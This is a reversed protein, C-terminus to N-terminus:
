EEEPDHSAPVGWYKREFADEELTVYMTKLYAKIGSKDGVEWHSPTIILDVTKVDAYDLLDITGEKLFTKNGGAIMVVKPPFNDFRVKVSLYARPEDEEERPRLFKINWGAEQLVPVIEDPIIVCFQRVGGKINFADPDGAFNRMSRPLEAGEITIPPLKETPYAM